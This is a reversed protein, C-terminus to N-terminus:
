LQILITNCITNYVKEAKVPLFTIGIYQINHTCLAIGLALVLYTIYLSLSLRARPVGRLVGPCPVAAADVYRSDLPCYVYFNRHYSKVFFYSESLPVLCFLM